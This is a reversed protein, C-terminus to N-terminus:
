TTRAQWDEIMALAGRWVHRDASRFQAMFIDFAATM